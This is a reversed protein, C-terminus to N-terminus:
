IFTAGIRKLRAAFDCFSRMAFANGTALGHSPFGPILRCGELHAIPILFM